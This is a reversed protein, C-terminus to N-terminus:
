VTEVRMYIVKNKGRFPLTALQLSADKDLLYQLFDSYHRVAREEHDSSRQIMRSPFLDPFVCCPIIAVSLNHELATLLIDETCQDPHLGLLLSNKPQVRAEDDEKNQLSLSYIENFTEKTFSTAIHEITPAEVNENKNRLRSSAKKLKAHRQKADSKRVMPDVITCKSIASTSSHMQQLILELSLRGKGGAVDFVHVSQPRLESSPSSPANGQCPQCILKDQETSMPIGFFVELIWSAFIKARKAKTHKGGHHFEEADIKSNDKQSSNSLIIQNQFKQVDPHSKLDLLRKKHKSAKEFAEGRAKLYESCM